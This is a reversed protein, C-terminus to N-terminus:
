FEETAEEDEVMKIYKIIRKIAEPSMDKSQKFLTKLDERQSLDQWFSLLEPDDSVANKIKDEPSNETKSYEIYKGRVAEGGRLLREEKNKKLIKSIRETLEENPIYGALIMLENEPIALAQSLKIITDHSPMSDGKELRSIYSHDLGTLESLDRLSLDKTLRANKISLGFEKLM